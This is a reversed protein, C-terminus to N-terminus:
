KSFMEPDVLCGSCCSMCATVVATIVGKPVRLVQHPMGKRVLLPDITLEDTVFWAASGNEVTAIIKCPVVTGFM